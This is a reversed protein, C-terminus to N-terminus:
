RRVLSRKRRPGRLNALRRRLREHLSPPLQARRPDLDAGCLACGAAFASVREGCRPCVHPGIASVGCDFLMRMHLRNRAHLGGIFARPLSASPPARAGVRDSRVDTCYTVGRERARVRRGVIGSGASPRGYRRKPRRSHPLGRTLTAPHTAGMPSIEGTTTDLRSRHQAVPVVHASPRVLVIQESSSSSLSGNAGTVGSACGLQPIGALSEVPASYTVRGAGDRLTVRDPQATFTAYVLPGEVDFAKPIAAAPMHSEGAPTRMWATLGHRLLVGAVVESRPRTCLDVHTGAWWVPSNGIAQNSKPGIPYRACSQSTDGQVDTTSVCLSVHGFYRIRHLVIAVPGSPTRATALTIHGPPLQDVPHSDDVVSHAAPRPKTARQAHNGANGSGCGALLVATCAVPVAASLLRQM